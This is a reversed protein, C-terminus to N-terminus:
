TLRKARNWVNTRDSKINSRLKSSKMAERYTKPWGRDDQWEPLLLVKLEDCRKAYDTLSLKRPISLIKIERESLPRPRRARPPSKRKASSQSKSSEPEGFTRVHLEDLAQKQRNLEELNAQHEAPSKVPSPFTSTLTRSESESM